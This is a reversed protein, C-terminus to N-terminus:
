RPGVSRARRPSRIATCTALASGSGVVTCQVPHVQRALHVAARVLGDARAGGPPRAPPDLLGGRREPVVRVRVAPRGLVDAAPEGAHDDEVVVRRGPGRERSAVADVVDREDELVHPEVVLAPEVRAAAREGRGAREAVAHRDVARDAGVQADRRLADAQPQEVRRPRPDVVDPEGAGARQRDHGGVAPQQARGDAGLADQEGRALAGLDHDGHARALAGHEGAV